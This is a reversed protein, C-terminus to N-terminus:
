RSALDGQELQPPYVVEFPFEFKELIWRIWGSPMSGGYRDCLGIRPRRLKLAPGSPRAQCADFNLGTEESLKQVSALTSAKAPVFVTGPPLSRRNVPPPRKLWYVEEGARLLRNM